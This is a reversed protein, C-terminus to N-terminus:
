DSQCRAPSRNLFESDRDLPQVKRLRSMGPSSAKSPRGTEPVKHIAIEIVDRTRLGIDMSQVRRAGRLLIGATILLLVCVTIQGVVLANRLRAPRYDSTFDGRAAQMVSTRTAQIAPALGFLLASALGAALM